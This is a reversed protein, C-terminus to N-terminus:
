PISRMTRRAAASPTRQNPAEVDPLRDACAAGGPRLRPDEGPERDAAGLDCLCERGVDIQTDAIGAEEVVDGGDRTLGSRRM